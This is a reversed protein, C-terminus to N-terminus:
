QVRVLPIFICGRAQIFIKGSTDQNYYQSATKYILHCGAIDNVGDYHEFCYAILDSLGNAFCHNNVLGTRIVHKKPTSILLHIISLEVTAMKMKKISIFGTNIELANCVNCLGHKHITRNRVILM